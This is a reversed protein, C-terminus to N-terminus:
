TYMQVKLKTSDVLLGFSVQINKNMNTYNSIKTKKLFSQPLKRKNM